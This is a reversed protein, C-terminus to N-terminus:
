DKIFVITQLWWFSEKKLLIRQFTDSFHKVLDTNAITDNTMTPQQQGGPRRMWIEMWVWGSRACFMIVARPLPLLVQHYCFPDQGQSQQDKGGAKVRQPM